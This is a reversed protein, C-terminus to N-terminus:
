IDAQRQEFQKQRKAIDKIDKQMRGFFFFLDKENRPQPDEDDEDETVPNIDRVQPADRPETPSNDQETRRM